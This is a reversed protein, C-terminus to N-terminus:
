SKRANRRGCSERGPRAAHRCPESLEDGLGHFSSCLPRMHRGAGADLYTQNVRIWEEVYSPVLADFERTAEHIIHAHWNM